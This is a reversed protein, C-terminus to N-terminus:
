NNSPLLLEVEGGEIGGHGGRNECHSHEKEWIDKVKQPANAPASHNVWTFIEVVRSKDGDENERVVVHPEAFVLHESRYIDWAQSLVILFDREDGLKVHYTVMVTEPKDKAADSKKSKTTSCATLAALSLIALIRAIKM